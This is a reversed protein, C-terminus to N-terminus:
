RTHWQLVWIRFGFSLGTLAALGALELACSPTRRGGAAPRCLGGLPALGPLLEDRHVAVLGPHHRHPRPVAFYIQAFGLYIALSGWGHLITDAHMVYTIVFFALWYAPVIRRLRRAWFSPM